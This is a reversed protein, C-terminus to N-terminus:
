IKEKEKQERVETMKRLRRINSSFFIVCLNIYHKSTSFPLAPPHRSLKRIWIEGGALSALDQSANQPFISIIIHQPCKCLHSVALYTWDDKFDIKKTMGSVFACQKRYCLSRDRTQDKVEQLSFTFVSVSSSAMKWLWASTIACEHSASQFHCLCLLFHVFNQLNSGAWSDCARINQTLTRLTRLVSKYFALKFMSSFLSIRILKSISDSM